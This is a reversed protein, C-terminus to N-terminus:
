ASQLLETFDQNNYYVAQLGNGTPTPTPAVLTYTGNQVGQLIEGSDSYAKVSANSLTITGTGASLPTLTLTYVTCTTSSSALIAGAFSPNARTPTQMYTFNCPNTAPASLSTIALNPSGAVTAQAANFAQGGGDVVVNVTVPTGVTVSASAPFTNITATQLLAQSEQTHSSLIQQHSLLHHFLLLTLFLFLLIGFCVLYLQTKTLKKTKRGKRQVQHTKEYEYLFGVEKGNLAISYKSTL